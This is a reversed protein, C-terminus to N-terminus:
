TGVEQEYMFEEKEDPEYATKIILDGSRTQIFVVKLRRYQDTEGIFWLTPPKTRHAERRDEISAYLRNDFCERIEAESVPPIKYALKERVKFSIIIAM